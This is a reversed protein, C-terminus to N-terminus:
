EQSYKFTKVVNVACRWQDSFQVLNICGVGHYVLENIGMKIDDECDRGPICTM